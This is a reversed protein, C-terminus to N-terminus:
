VLDVQEIGGHHVQIHNFLIAEDWVEFHYFIWHFYNFFESSDELLYDSLLFYDKLYPFFNESFWINSLQQGMKSSIYLCLQVLLDHEIGEDISKLEAFLITSDSKLYAHVMGFAKRM